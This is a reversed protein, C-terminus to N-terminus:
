IREPLATFILWALSERFTLPRAKGRGNIALWYWRKRHVKISRTDLRHAIEHLLHKAAAEHTSGNYSLCRAIGLAKLSLENDTM